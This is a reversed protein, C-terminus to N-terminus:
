VAGPGALVRARFGFPRDGPDSFRLLFGAFGGPLLTVNDTLYSSGKPNHARVTGHPNLLRVTGPMGTLVLYLPGSIPAATKNKVLVVAQHDPLRVTTVRVSPTVDAAVEPNVVETVAPSTSGATFEFLMGYSDGGYKATLSHHGPRLARTTLRASGQTANTASPMVVVTGLEVTGDLFTVSGVRDSGTGPQLNDSGSETVVATLTVPRGVVAPSPSVSLVTTSPTTRDELSELRPRFRLRAAGPRPPRRFPSRFM